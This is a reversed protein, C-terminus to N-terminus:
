DTFPKDLMGQWIPSKYRASKKKPPPELLM